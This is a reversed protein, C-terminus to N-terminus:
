CDHKAPGIARWSLVNHARSERELERRLSGYFGVTALDKSLADRLSEGRRCDSDGLREVVGSGVEKVGFRRTSVGTANDISVALVKAVAAADAALIGWFMSRAVEFSCKKVTCESDDRMLCRFRFPFATLLHFCTVLSGTNAVPM